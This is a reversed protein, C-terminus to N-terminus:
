EGILFRAMHSETRTYVKLLYIGEAWGQLNLVQQDSSVPSSFVRVGQLTFVEIMELENSCRVVLKNKAPNPYLQLFSQGQETIGVPDNDVITVTIVSDTSTATGSLNTITLQFTENGEGLIDNIISVPVTVSTITNGPVNFNTTTLTFDPGNSATGGSVVVDFTLANLDQNSVSIPINLVGFNEPVALSTTDFNVSSAGVPPPTGCPMQTHFGLSDTMDSAYAFWSSVGALWTKHGYYRYTNRILTANATGGSGVGWGGAGPYNNFDGIVDITDVGQLLYVADDGNFNIFNSTADAQALILANASPNAIVYVDGPAISGALTYSSLTTGNSKKALFYGSLNIPAATPNYIELAKNNSSGEIYESFYLNLCEGYPTVVPCTDNDALTLTYTANGLALPSTPNELQLIISEPGEDCLTDNVITVPLVITTNNGATWTITTDNFIFDTGATATGSGLVVDVSLDTAYPISLQVNLLVQGDAEGANATAPTISVELVDNDTLTVTIQSDADLTANNTPSSLSFIIIESGEVLQDDTVTILVNQSSSSNAPFTILSSSPSFDTGATATGGTATLTVSTANANAGLINVQITFTGVGEDYTASVANLKVIPNAPAPDDNLITYTFLSDIDKSAGNTLSTLGLLITENAEFQADNIITLVANQTGNTNPPFTVTASSLSFDAPSSASGGLVSVTASTANANANQLTVPVNITTVSELQSLAVQGFQVLPVIPAVDNDLITVTFISDAGLTNVGSPNRLKIQVQETAEVIADDVINISFPVTDFGCLTITVPSTTVTLDAGPVDLQVEVTNSFTRPNTLQIYGAVLTGASENVTLSTNVFRFIPAPPAACFNQGANLLGPTRIKGTCWVRLNTGLGNEPGNLVQISTGVPSNAAETAIINVAAIGSAIGSTGTLAGEYTIFDILQDSGPSGCGTVSPMFAIALGDPAGNQLGGSPLPFWIAGFGCGENPIVGTLLLSDYIGGGNGNYMYAKYCALDTGAPGAVEFGELTDIGANDYHLENIWLNTTFSSGGQAAVMLSFLALSFFLISKKM